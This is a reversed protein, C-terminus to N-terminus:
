LSSGGCIIIQQGTIAGADRSLLFAVTGAVESPQVFRGVPPLRPAVGRRAPDLVMPTAPAKVATGAQLDAKRISWGCEHDIHERKTGIGGM